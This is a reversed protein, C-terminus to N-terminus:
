RKGLLEGIIQRGMAAAQERTMDLHLRSDYLVTLMIEDWRTFDAEGHAPSLVSTVIGSHYKFGFSHMIEHSICDGIREEEVVSIKIKAREIVPDDGSLTVLCPVFDNRVTFGEDAVFEVEYNAASEEAALMRVSVGTLAAVKQLRAEVVPRYQESRVGSLKVRVPRTWRVIRNSREVDSDYPGGFALEDFFRGLRERDQEPTQCASVLVVVTAIIVTAIICAKNVIVALGEEAPLADGRM